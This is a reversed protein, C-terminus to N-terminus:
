KTKKRNLFQNMKEILSNIMESTNELPIEPKGDIINIWRAPSNDDELKHNLEIAKDDTMTAKDKIVDEIVLHYTKKNM